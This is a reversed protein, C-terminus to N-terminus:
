SVYFNAEAGGLGRPDWSLELFFLLLLNSSLPTLSGGGLSLAGEGLSSSLKFEEEDASKSFNTASTCRWCSARKRRIATDRMTRVILSEIASHLHFDVQATLHLQNEKFDIIRNMANVSCALQLTSRNQTRSRRIKQRSARTQLLPYISWRFRLPSTSNPIRKCLSRVEEFSLRAAHNAWVRFHQLIRLSPTLM